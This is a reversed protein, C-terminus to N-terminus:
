GKGWGQGEGWGGPPLWVRLLRKGQLRVLELTGGALPLRQVLSYPEGEEAASSSSSCPSAEPASSSPIADTSGPAAAAGNSSQERAVSSSQQSGSQQFAALQEALAAQVQRTAATAGLSSGNVAVHGNGNATQPPLLPALGGQAATGDEATAPSRPANPQFECRPAAQLRAASRRRCEHYFCSPETPSPGTAPNQRRRRCRRRCPQSDPACCGARKFRSPANGCRCGGAPLPTGQLLARGFMLLRPGGELGRAWDTKLSPNSRSQFQDFRLSRSSPMAAPMQRRARRAQM